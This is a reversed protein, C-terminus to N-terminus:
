PTNERGELLFASGLGFAVALVGLLIHAWTILPLGLPAIREPQVMLLGWSALWVGVLVLALQLHRNRGVLPVKSM